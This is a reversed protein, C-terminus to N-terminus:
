GGAHMRRLASEACRHARQFDQGSGARPQARPAPKLTSPIVVFLAQVLFFCWLALMLSQSQTTAWVAAAISLASLGLDALAALISAHFYLSRVLWILGVHVLVYILLPPQMAWAVAAILTWLMICVVRGVRERSRGLLYLVYAFALLAIVTRLLLAPALLLKLTVFVAAGFFSLLLAILVGQLFSPHKTAASM